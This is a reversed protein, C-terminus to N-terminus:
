EALWQNLRALSLKVDPLPNRDEPEHEISIGGKYGIEKLAAVCQRIGVVGDGLVCTEHGMDKLTPNRDPASERIDKHGSQVSPDLVDKLHVHVIRNSLRRIADPADCRNSGFWGTDVALGIRGGVADGIKALLEEVSKEPHNEFGFILDHKELAALFERRNGELVGDRCGGGIIRTGCAKAIAAARDIVALDNPVYFALSSVSLRRRALIEAAERIQRETAWSPSLHSAWLDIASFGLAVIEGLMTDFREAFTEEPRFFESTATDGEGWGRTMTFNLQRAVFNATM